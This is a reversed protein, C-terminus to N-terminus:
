ADGNEALGPIDVVAGALGPYVRPTLCTMGVVGGRHVDM